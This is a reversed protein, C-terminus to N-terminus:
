GYHWAQHDSSRLQQRHVLNTLALNLDPKVAGGRKRLALQPSLNSPWASPRAWWRTSLTIPESHAGAKSGHCLSLNMIPLPEVPHPRQNPHRLHSMLTFPRAPRPSSPPSRPPVMGRSAAWCPSNLHVRGGWRCLSLNAIPSGAKGGHCLALNVMSRAPESRIWGPKNREDRGGGVSVRIVSSGNATRREPGTFLTVPQDHTPTWGGHGLSLNAITNGGQERSLTVPEDHPTTRGSSPHENPHRLHSM